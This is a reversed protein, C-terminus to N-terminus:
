FKLITKKILVIINSDIFIEMSDSTGMVNLINHFDSDCEMDFTLLCHYNLYFIWPHIAEPSRAGAELSVFCEAVSGPQFAGKSACRAQDARIHHHPRGGPRSERRVTAFRFLSYTRYLM